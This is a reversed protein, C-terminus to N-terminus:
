VELPDDPNEADWLAKYQADTWGIRERHLIRGHYLERRAMERKLRVAPRFNVRLAGKRDIGPAFTGIDPLKVARGNRNFHLIAEHLEAVLMLVESRNLGTHRAMWDAVEDLQATKSWDLRPGYQRVANVIKAM